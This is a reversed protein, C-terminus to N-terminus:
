TLQSIIQKKEKIDQRYEIIGKELQKGEGEEKYM